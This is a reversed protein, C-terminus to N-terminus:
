KAPSIQVAGSAPEHDRLHYRIRSSPRPKGRLCRRGLENLEWQARLAGNASPTPKILDGDCWNAIVKVRGADIGEQQLTAAMWNGPVINMDASRLSRNRLLRLLRFVTRGGDGAVGLREAVEPFIDQLWNILRARRLRAVPAAILSLLPPDTKAVIVDGRNTAQWLSVSASLYFSLYELARGLLTDANTRFSWVRRIEVNGVTERPPLRAARDDYRLRSTIATVRIGRESLSFALDSLLDSTPSQDPFFFRNVLIVHKPGSSPMFTM